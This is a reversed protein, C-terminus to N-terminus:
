EGSGVLPARGLRPGATPSPAQPMPRSGTRVLLSSAALMRMTVVYQTVAACYCRLVDTDAAFIIETSAM